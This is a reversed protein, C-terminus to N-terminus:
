GFTLAKEDPSDRSHPLRTGLVEEGRRGQRESGHCVTFLKEVIIIGEDWEGELEAELEEVGLCERRELLDMEVAESRSETLM